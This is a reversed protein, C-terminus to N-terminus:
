RWHAPFTKDYYPLATFREHWQKIAEPVVEGVRSEPKRFQIRNVYGVAPALVIDVASASEGGFFPGKLEGELTRLEKAIQERGKAVKELDPQV